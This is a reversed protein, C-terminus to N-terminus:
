VRTGTLGTAPVDPPLHRCTGAARIDIARSMTAPTQKEQPPPLTAPFPILHHYINLDPSDTEDLLQLGTM